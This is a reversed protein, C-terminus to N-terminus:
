VEILRALEFHMPDPTSWRGGWAFGWKEFIAVIRPDMKGRTGYYNTSVNLDVALGFAHMSLGRRPDRGIFRPVYCGGFEKPDIEEALGREEIEALAAGLQPFVVRHCTVSGLVPVEGNAINSAVWAPDPEIYGNKLIRFEMSGILEGEATGVPDPTDAPPAAAEPQMSRIKRVRDGLTSEISDRISALDAGKRVGVVLRSAPRLRAAGRVSDSVLVDGLNPVGNDAFAGVTVETPGISIGGSDFRLEDSAGATLVAQGNLLSTWVFDANQTNTPAVNRFELPDVAVVDLSRTRKGYTIPAREVAVPVAASVGNIKEVGRIDRDSVSGKLELRFAPIAPRLRPLRVHPREVTTPKTAIPDATSVCGQLLVFCVLAWRFRM